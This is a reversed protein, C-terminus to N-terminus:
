YLAPSLSYIGIQPLVHGVLVEPLAISLEKHIQPRTVVSPPGGGAFRPNGPELLREVIM